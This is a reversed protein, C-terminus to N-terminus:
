IKKTKWAIHEFLSSLVQNGRLQNFLPLHGTPASINWIFEQPYRRLIGQNSWGIQQWLKKWDYNNLIWLRRQISFGFKGNSYIQWLLDITHLDESPITSIDTFYLWNRQENTQLGALDQLYKQTLSDAEKFEQNILLKQLPQYDIRSINNLPVIGKPLKENLMKKIDDITSKKLHNFILGDLLLLHKQKKIKRELLVQLLNQQSKEGDIFYKEVVNYTEKTLNNTKTTILKDYIYEIQNQTETNDM